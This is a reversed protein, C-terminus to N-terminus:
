KMIKRTEFRFTDLQIAGIAQWIAQGGLWIYHGLKLKAYGAISFTRNIIPITVLREGEFHESLNNSSDSPIKMIIM